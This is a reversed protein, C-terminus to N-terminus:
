LLPTLQNKAAEYLQYMYSNKPCFTNNELRDYATKKSIMSYSPTPM